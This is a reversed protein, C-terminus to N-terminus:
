HRNKARRGRHANFLGTTAMTAPPAETAMMAPRKSRLPPVCDSGVCVGVDLGGECGCFSTEVDPGVVSAVVSAVGGALAVGLGLGLADVGVVAVGDATAGGVATAGMGAEAMAVGTGPLPLVGLGSGAGVEVGEGEGEVGVGWSGALSQWERLWSQWMQLPSQTWAWAM